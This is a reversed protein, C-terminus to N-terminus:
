ARSGDPQNQIGGAGVPPIPFLVEVTSALAKAIKQATHVDPIRKGAEYRQYSMVSLGIKKALQVQTLEVSERTNKIITM